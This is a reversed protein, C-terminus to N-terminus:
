GVEGDGDGDSGGGAVGSGDFVHYGWWEAAVVGFGGDGCWWSVGGAGGDSEGADGAYVVRDDVDGHVDGDDGGTFGGVVWRPLPSVWAYGDALRATVTVTQGAVPSAPVM